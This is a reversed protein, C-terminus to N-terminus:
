HEAFYAVVYELFCKFVLWRRWAIVIHEFQHCWKQATSYQRRSNNNNRQRHPSELRWKDLATAAGQTHFQEQGNHKSHVPGHHQWRKSLLAAWQYQRSIFWVRSHGSHHKCSRHSHKSVVPRITPRRRRRGRRRRRAFHQRREPRETHSGHLSERQSRIFERWRKRIHWM